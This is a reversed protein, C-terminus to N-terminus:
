AHAGVMPGGVHAALASQVRPRPSSVPRTSGPGCGAATRFWWVGKYTSTCAHTHPLTRTQMHTRTYRHTQAHRRTERVRHTVSDRTHARGAGAGGEEAPRILLDHLLRVREAPTCQAAVAEAEVDEMYASGVGQGAWMLVLMCLTCTRAQTDAHTISDLGRLAPAM